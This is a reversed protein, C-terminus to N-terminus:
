NPVSTSELLESIDLMAKQPRKPATDEYIVAWGFTTNLALTISNQAVGMMGAVFRIKHDQGTQLDTLKVPASALGSPIQDLSPGQINHGTVWEERKEAANMREQWQELYPNPKLKNTVGRFSLERLYPFLVMIWGTMEAGGSSAEFRFFSQWFLQDVDGRATAELQELVPILTKTWNELGYLAFVQARTKLDHWDAPMGLLTIKPIGCGASMEYEFYGQFADMLSVNYAALHTATSTSFKPTLREHVSGIHSAIQDSFTGFVEPWPNPQGLVFDTREVVLKQKGEHQVFRDRLQESNLSVHQAFGQLLCFWIDDPGIVLPHHDYFATHAAQAFPHADNCIVLKSDDLLMDEVRANLLNTVSSVQDLAPLPQSATEVESVPFTISM